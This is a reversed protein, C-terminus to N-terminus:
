IGCKAISPFLFTPKGTNGVIKNVMFEGGGGQGGENLARSLHPPKSDSNSSPALTM